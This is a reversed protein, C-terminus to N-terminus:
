GRLLAIETALNRRAAADWLDRALTTRFLHERGALDTLVALRGRRFADDPYAAYERRVGATYSAYREAPAALIALDADCLAAGRHDGPEPDHHETLRVLRVVEPVDVATDGVTAGDLEAAALRASREEADALGDYVADHFWAALVVETDDAHGLEALRALVETLHLTDHYGRGDDGYAALLRDRLDLRGPLPWPPTPDAMVAAQCVAPHRM